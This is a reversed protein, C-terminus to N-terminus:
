RWTMQLLGKKVSWDKVSFSPCAKGPDLDRHGILTDIPYKTMIERVQWELSAWQEPSFNNEAILKGNMRKVGGVMCIGISATNGGKANCHAGKVSEKRGPEITGDRRIVWHYGIDNWGNDNVHWGRITKAGIDM